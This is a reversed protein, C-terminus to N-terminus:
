SCTATWAPRSDDKAKDDKEAKAGGKKKAKEAASSEGTTVGFRLIYRAGDALQLTIDGSNSLIEQPGNPDQPNPVVFFGRDM